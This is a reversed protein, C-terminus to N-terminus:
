LSKLIKEKRENEEVQNLTANFRKQRPDTDQMRLFRDMNLTKNIEEHVKIENIEKLYEDFNNELLLEYGSKFMAQRDNMDKEIKEFPELRKNNYADKAM